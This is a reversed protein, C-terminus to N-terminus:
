AAGDEPQAPTLLAELDAVADETFYMPQRLGDGKIVPTIRDEAVWRCVTSVSRGVRGAVQKTTLLNM